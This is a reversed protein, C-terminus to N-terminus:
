DMSSKFYIPHHAHNYAFVASFLSSCRPNYYQPPTPIFGWLYQPTVILVTKSRM